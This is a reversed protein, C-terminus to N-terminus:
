RGGPRRIETAGGDLSLPDTWVIWQFLDLRTFKLPELMPEVSLWRVGSKIRAFTEEAAKVRVQLDVTTGMWANDPLDFEAMRKPFKTLFLFNWSPASRAEALV